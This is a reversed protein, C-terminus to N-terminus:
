RNTSVKIYDVTLKRDISGAALNQVMFYAYMGRLSHITGTISGAAVEVDNVWVTNPEPKELAAIINLLTSKGCGSPGYLIIFEEPYIEFSNNVLAQFENSKGLNYTFNLNQVKILPKM